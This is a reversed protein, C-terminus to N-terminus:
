AVKCLWIHSISEPGVGCLPCGEGVGFRREVLALNCPLAKKM